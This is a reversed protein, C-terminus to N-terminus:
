TTRAGSDVLLIFCPHSFIRQQLTLMANSNITTVLVHCCSKHKKM